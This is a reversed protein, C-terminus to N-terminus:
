DELFGGSQHAWLNAYIGNNKILEKHSGQEAITGESLVVIRDMKQITSLRHAVVIATRNEMLKWLADQILKESESDLASTAEDLVLIPADKLMARAIAIRQRQGGSLKVGREGVLTEYKAPLKEIFEDAHALKAIRVVDAQTADQKGYRINDTLSRHFMAPEQPVYAIAHRLDNQTVNAINQGDVLIEGGNIDMFRLLLKTVTTKGGGSHGVLAVKEGPKISLNFDKFLHEGTVDSYSFRVDKMEIAGAAVTLKQPQKTDVVAPEELLLETFQAAETISSELRRYVNNFEWMTRTAAVFYNFSVFVVELGVATKRSIYLSLALGIANTFVFFPSLLMDIRLNQYDWSRKTKKALDAVKIKHQKAEEAENGFAKVADINGIVDAIYGTVATSATERAAVMKQRRKILPFVCLGAVLLLGVLALVLWPSFFWLIGLAFLIPIYSAFVNFMLTDMVEEYRRSYSTVRKTLAGAFNNNFFAIDKALLYDMANNYLRQIGNVESKIVFHIGVRWCVEGLSWLLIFLLIYPTFDALQDYSKDNFRTLIKAVILPPVYFVLISGIAPLLFGPVALKWDLKIQQYYHRVALKTAQVNRQQNM